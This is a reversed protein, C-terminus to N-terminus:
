SGSGSQAQQQGHEVLSQFAASAESPDTGEYRFSGSEITFSGDPKCILDLSTKQTEGDQQWNAQEPNM